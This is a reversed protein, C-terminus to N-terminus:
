AIIKIKLKLNKLKAKSWLSPILSKKKLVPNTADPDENNGTM